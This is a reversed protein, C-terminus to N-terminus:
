VLGIERTEKGPDNELSIDGLCLKRSEDNGRCGCNIALFWWFGRQLADNYKMSFYEKEFLMDEETESLERAANPKQGLGAKRLEQRNAALVKRSTIFRNDTLINTDDYYNKTDLYRKLARHITSLVGPEYNKGDKKKAEMFFRGLLGDLENPPIVHIDRREGINNLFKTLTSFAYKNSAKTNKADQARIFEQFNSQSGMSPAMSSAMSQVLSSAM